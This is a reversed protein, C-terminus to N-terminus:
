SKLTTKPYYHSLIQSYNYGNKAMGNAGYQSMGVGHGYGKTQFVVGNENKIISFDASRLGLLSRVEVGSYSVDNIKIVEVRDGITKSLIEFHTDININMSLKNSIEAYSIFQDKLFSPNTNDYNSEVSVLYPFSNGWVNVADETKGNSTSHYVAEILDGNYTLVMKNTENVASLVKQYYTDFSANWMSRLEDVSKYNQTSSSDTLRTNNKISKLAYTRALVAQAKLAEKNFSAPMEAGVVGVIYEELELTLTNNKRYLTIYTKNEEIQNQQKFDQNSNTSDDSTNIKFEDKKENTKTTTTSNNITTNESEKVKINEEKNNLVIQDINDDIEDQNIVSVIKTQPLINEQNQVPKNIILTGILLGGAIITVKKGNFKIKNEKIYEKIIENIKQKKNKGKIKAFELNFDFYLYLIEENNERKIEYNNIM